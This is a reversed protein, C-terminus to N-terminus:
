PYKLDFRWKYYVRTLAYGALLFAAYLPYPICAVASLGVVTWKVARAVQVSGGERAGYVSPLTALAALVFLLDLTYFGLLLAAAFWGLAWRATRQPGMIVALTQKGTQEDGWRDPVTTLLYVAGVAFFYPLSGLGTAAYDVHTGDHASFWGFLFVISGHAMANAVLAAFARDKLRWPPASYLFGLVLILGALLVFRPSLGALLAFAAVNLLVYYIVCQRPSILGLPLFHGKGNLRDTEVDYYQNIIFVGGFLATLAFLVVVTETSLSTPIHRTDLAAGCLCITWVPVLLVPRLVFIFDLPHGTTPQKM